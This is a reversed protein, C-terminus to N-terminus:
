KVKYCDTNNKIESKQIKRKSSLITVKITCNPIVALNTDHLNNELTPLSPYINLNMYCPSVKMSEHDIINMLM